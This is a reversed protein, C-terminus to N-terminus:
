YDIKVGLPGLTKSFVAKSLPKLMFNNCGRKLAEKVFNIDAEGTVMVIASTRSEGVGKLKENLRLIQVTYIGDFDPLKNDLIVIDYSSLNKLQDNFLAIAEISSKVFTCDNYAGLLKKYIEHSSEDDDVILINM